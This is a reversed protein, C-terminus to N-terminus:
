SGTCEKEKILNYFFNKSAENQPNLFRLNKYKAKDENRSFIQMNSYPIKDIISWGINEFNNKSEEYYKLINKIFDGDKTPLDEASNFIM